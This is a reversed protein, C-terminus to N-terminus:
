MSEVLTVNVRGIDNECDIKQFIVAFISIDLGGGM